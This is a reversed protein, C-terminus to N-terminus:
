SLTKNSIIVAVAIAAAVLLSIKYVIPFQLYIVCVIAYSGIHNHMVQTANRILPCKSGRRYLSPLLICLKFRLVPLETKFFPKTFHFQPSEFKHNENLFM